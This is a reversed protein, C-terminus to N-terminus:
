RYYANPVTGLSGNPSVVPYEILRYNSLVLTCFLNVTDTMDLENM